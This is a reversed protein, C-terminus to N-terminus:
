TEAWLSPPSLRPMGGTHTGVWRAADLYDAVVVPGAAADMVTTGEALADAIAQSRRIVFPLLREGLQQRLLERVDLHLPQTADFGNLLYMPRVTQGLDSDLASFFEEVARLTIVSNMDPAVPVVIRANLGVLLRLIWPTLMSTDVLIRNSQGGARCLEYQLWELGNREGQGLVDLSVLDVPVSSRAAGSAVTRVASPRLDSGGFYFPLLGQPTTDVLLVREGMQSLARGLTAVLSTKGVGGTLSFMALLPVHSGCPRTASSAAPTEGTAEPAAGRPTFRQSAVRECSSQLTEAGRTNPEAPVQGWVDEPEDSSSLWAPVPAPLPLAIVAHADEGSLEGSEKQDAQTRGYSLAAYRDVAATKDRFDPEFYLLAHADQDERPGGDNWERERPSPWSTPFLPLTGRSVTLARPLAYHSERSPPFRRPLMDELDGTHLDGTHSGAAPAPGSMMGMVSGSVLRLPSATLESAPAPLPGPTPHPTSSLTSSQTSSAGSNSGSDSGSNSGSGSGSNFAPNSAPRDSSQELVHTAAAGPGRGFAAPDERRETVRERPPEGQEWSVEEKMSFQRVM